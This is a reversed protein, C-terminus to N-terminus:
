PRWDSGVSSQEQEQLPQLWFPTQGKAATAWYVVALFPVLLVAFGMGQRAQPHLRGDTSVRWATLLWAVIAVLACMALVLDGIMPVSEVVFPAVAALPASCEETSRQGSLDARSWRYGLRVM